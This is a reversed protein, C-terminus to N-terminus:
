THTVRWLISIPANDLALAARGAVEGAIIKDADTVM